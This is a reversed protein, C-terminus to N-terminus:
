FEDEEDLKLAAAVEAETLPRLTIDKYEGTTKFTSIGFPVSEEIEGFRMDVKRDKVNANVIREDGVFAQIRHDTVVLRFSYWKGTEFERVHMTMNEMADMFDISSIGCVSGGWGGVVYSAHKDGFPFTLCFFFDDGEVKRATVSVEYNKKPVEAGAKLKVGNLMGDGSKVRLAGDVVEGGGNGAYNTPEWGELTKGDFLSKAATAASEAAKTEEAVAPEDACGCGTFFALALGALPTLLPSTYRKMIRHHYPAPAANAFRTEQEAVLTLSARQALPNRSSQKSHLNTAPHV